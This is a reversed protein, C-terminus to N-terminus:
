IFYQKYTDHHHVLSLRFFIMTNEPSGLNIKFTPILSVTMKIHSIQNSYFCNDIHLM